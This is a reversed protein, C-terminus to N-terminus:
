ANHAKTQDDKAVKDAAKQALVARKVSANPDAGSKPGIGNQARWAVFDADSWAENLAEGIAHEPTSNGLHRQLIQLREHDNPPLNLELKIPRKNDPQPKM